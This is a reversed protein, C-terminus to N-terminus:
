AHSGKELVFGKEKEKASESGRNTKRHARSGPGPLRTGICLTIM